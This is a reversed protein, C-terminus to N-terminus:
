QVHCQCLLWSSLNSIIVNNRSLIFFNFHTFYQIMEEFVFGKITRLRFFHKGINCLSNIGLRFNRSKESNVEHPANCNIFKGAEAICKQVETDAYVKGFEIRHINATGPTVPLISEIHGGECGKYKGPGADSYCFM